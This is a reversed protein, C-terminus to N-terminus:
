CGNQLHKMKKTRCTFSFCKATLILWKQFHPVYFFSDSSVRVELDDEIEHLKQYEPTLDKSSEPMSEVGSDIEELTLNVM